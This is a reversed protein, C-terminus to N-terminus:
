ENNEDSDGFVCEDDYELITRDNAARKHLSERQAAMINAQVAKFTDLTLIKNEPIETQEFIDTIYNEATTQLENVAEASIRSPYALEDRVKAENVVEKVLRYFVSKPISLQGPLLATETMTATHM